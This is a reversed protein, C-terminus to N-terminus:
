NPCNNKNKLVTGLKVIGKGFKEELKDWSKSLEQKKLINESDFISIQQSNQSTLKTACFGVSRYITGKEFMSNLIEKAHGLLEFETNTANILNVKVNTSRFDKTRLM